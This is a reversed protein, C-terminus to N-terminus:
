RHFHLFEPRKMLVFIGAGLAFLFLLIAILNAITKATRAQQFVRDTSRKEAAMFMALEKEMSAITAEDKLQLTFWPTDETKWADPLRKLTEADAPKFGVGNWFPVTERAWLRLIGHNTALTQIRSWLLERAQDAIAFDTFGESHLRGTGGAIQLGIGGLVKGEPNEVVQFETLRRELEAAPLKM